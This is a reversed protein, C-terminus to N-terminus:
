YQHIYALIYKMNILSLTKTFVFYYSFQDIELFHLIAVINVWITYYPYQQGLLGRTNKPTFITRAVCIEMEHSKFGTDQHDCFLLSIARAGYIKLVVVINEGM